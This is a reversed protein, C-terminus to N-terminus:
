NSIMKDGCSLPISGELSLVPPSELKKLAQDMARISKCFSLSTSLLERGMGIWQAGQGCFVFAISSTVKMSKEFNSLKGDSKMIAFARHTMHDRRTGLTFALDNIDVPRNAVYKKIDNIRDELSKEDKTSLVLLQPNSHLPNDISENKQHSFSDLIVKLIHALPM